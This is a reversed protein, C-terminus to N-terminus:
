RQVHVCVCVREHMHMYVGVYVCIKNATFSCLAGEQYSRSNPQAANQLLYYRPVYNSTQKKWLSMWDSGM